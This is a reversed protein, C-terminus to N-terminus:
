IMENIHPDNEALLKGSLDWYNTVWRNPDEETGSGRVSVTKIVAIVEAKDCGRPRPPNGKEKNM